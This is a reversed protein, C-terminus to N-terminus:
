LTQTASGVEMELFNSFLTVALVVTTYVYNQLSIIVFLKM